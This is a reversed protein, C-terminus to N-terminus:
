RKDSCIGYLVTKGRPVNEPFRLYDWNNKEIRHIDQFFRTLFLTKFNM